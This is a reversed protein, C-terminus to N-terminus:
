EYTIKETSGLIGCCVEPENIDGLLLACPAMKILLRSADPSLIDGGVSRVRSEGQAMRGAAALAAEGMHHLSKVKEVGRCSRWPWTLAQAVVLRGCGSGIDGFCLKRYNPVSPPVPGVTTSLCPHYSPHSSAFHTFRSYKRVQPTDRRNAVSLSLQGPALRLAM